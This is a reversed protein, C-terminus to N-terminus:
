KNAAPLKNTATTGYDFDNDHGNYLNGLHRKLMRKTEPDDAFSHIANLEPLECKFLRNGVKVPKPLVEELRKRIEDEKNLLITEPERRPARRAVAKADAAGMFYENLNGVTSHDNTTNSSVMFCDFKLLFLPLTEKSALFLLIVLFKYLSWAFFMGPAFSQNTTLTPVQPADILATMQQFWEDSLPELQLAAM